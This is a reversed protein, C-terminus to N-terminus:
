SFRHLIRFRCFCCCGNTTFLLTLPIKNQNRNLNLNEKYENTHVASPTHAIKAFTKKKQENRKGETPENLRDSSVCIKPSM